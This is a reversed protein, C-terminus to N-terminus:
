EIKLKSVKDIVETRDTSCGNMAKGFEDDDLRAFNAMMIYRKQSVVRENHMGVIGELVSTEEKSLDCNLKLNLEYFEWSEKRSDKNRWQFYKEIVQTFNDVEYQSETVFFGDYSIDLRFCSNREKLRLHGKFTM